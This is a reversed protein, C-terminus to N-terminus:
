EGNRKRRLDVGYRIWIWALALTQVLDIVRDVVSPWEIV